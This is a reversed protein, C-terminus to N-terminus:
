PVNAAASAIRARFYTFPGGPLLWAVEGVTPLRVGNVLGYEGYAGRWPTPVSTKGVTRPRAAASVATIDGASDFHLEVAVYEGAVPTAVEITAEDIERWALANNAVMAQPAWALEALYRMAEGRSVDSGGARFLPIRAFLRGDLGGEDDRYWDRVRLTVLPALRFRANWVFGVQDVAMVQEATFRLSRGGPKLQMVGTQNFRVRGAPDLALSRDVYDRVLGPLARGSNMGASAAAEGSAVDDSSRTQLENM